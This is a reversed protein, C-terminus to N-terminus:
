NVTCPKTLADSGKYNFHTIRRNLLKYTFWKKKKIFYKLYLVLDNSLIVEFIDHGLRPPLGPQCVPFSKLANFVSNVKIGKDDEGDESTLDNVTSDYAGPTRQPGCVNPDNNKFESRTIECYRYFYNSRSFNEKFGGISHSRLNDGTIWYLAAKVTKFDACIGNEELDNSDELMESFLQAYGFQKVDKEGCLM